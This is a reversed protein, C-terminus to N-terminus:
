SFRANGFAGQEKSLKTTENTDVDVIFLDVKQSTDVDEEKNATYLVNKADPSVDQMQYNMEGSTHQTYTDTKLNYSFIHSYTQDHFGRADSKHKLKTIVVPEKQQDKKR